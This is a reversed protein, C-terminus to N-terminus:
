GSAFGESGEAAAVKERRESDYVSRESGERRATPSSPTSNSGWVLRAPWKRMTALIRPAVNRAGKIYRCNMRRPLRLFSCSYQHGSQRRMIDNSALRLM